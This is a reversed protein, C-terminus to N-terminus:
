WDYGSTRKVSRRHPHRDAKKSEPRATYTYDRQKEVSLANRWADWESASVRKKTVVKAAKMAASYKRQVADPPLDCLGSFPYDSPLGLRECATVLNVDFIEQVEATAFKV